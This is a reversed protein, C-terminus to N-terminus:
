VDKVTEAILQDVVANLAQQHDAGDALAQQYCAVQRHASTGRQLITRAHNVEAQCGFYEADEQIFQLIEELLDAYPVIRGVGFDVLGEDFGYRQARWRNEQVLMRNYIRWRQNNRRLRYLMRLLCRYLAAICLTDELRTPLDAIRVELTPYRCSPRIDWWIKSADELLGANVLVNVHRQYESFSAFREPLGTRPLEDFVCLRYSWLGVQEGVWFPSSTSLVLLHPLFYMMQNMLDIRMDDDDIGVHVHMGCILLRRAVVQMDRALGDYREKDTHKQTQWDAFPHTSAAIPALDHQNAIRAITARLNSLDKRVDAISHHVKTGVEIQSRLFEPSVQQPLCNDCEALLEQPQEVLARTQKSVLLYEEEIGITFSPETLTHLAVM